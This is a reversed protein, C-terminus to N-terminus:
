HLESIVTRSFRQLVTVEFERPSFNGCGFAQGNQPKSLDAYGRSLRAETM